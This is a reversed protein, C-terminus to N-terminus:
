ERWPLFNSHNEFLGVFVVLRNDNGNTKSFIIGHGHLLILPQIYALPLTSEDLRSEGRVVRSNSATVCERASEKIPWSGHGWPLALRSVSLLNYSPVSVNNTSTYAPYLSFQVLIFSQGVPCKPPLLCSPTPVDASGIRSYTIQIFRMDLFAKSALNIIKRAEDNNKTKAFTLLLRWAPIFCGNLTGPADGVDFLAFENVHRLITPCSRASASHREYISFVYPTVSVEVLILFSGDAGNNSEDHVTRDEVLL